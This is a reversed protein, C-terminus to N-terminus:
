FLLLLPKIFIKCDIVKRIYEQVSKSVEDEDAVSTVEEIISAIERINGENISRM